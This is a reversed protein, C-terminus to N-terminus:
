PKDKELWEPRTEADLAELAELHGPPPEITDARRVVVEHQIPKWVGALALIKEALRVRLKEDSTTLFTRVITWYAMGALRHLAPTLISRQYPEWGPLRIWGKLQGTNVGLIGAISTHPVGCLDLISAQAQLVSLGHQLPNPAFSLFHDALPQVRPLTGGLLSSGSHSQLLPELYEGVSGQAM